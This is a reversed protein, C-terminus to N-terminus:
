RGYKIWEIRRRSLIFEKMRAELITDIRTLTSKARRPTEIYEFKYTTKM